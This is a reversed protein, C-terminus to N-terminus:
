LGQFHARQSSLWNFEVIIDSFIRKQIMTPNVKVRLKRKINIIASEVLTKAGTRADATSPSFVPRLFSTFAQSKTRKCAHM